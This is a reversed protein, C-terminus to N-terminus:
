RGGGGFKAVSILVICSHARGHLLDAWFFPRFDVAASAGDPGNERRERQRQRQGCPCLPGAARGHQRSDGRSRQRALVVRRRVWSASTVRPEDFVCPRGHELKRKVWNTEWDKPM